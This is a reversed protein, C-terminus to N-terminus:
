LHKAVLIFATLTNAMVPSFGALGAQQLRHPLHPHASETLAIARRDKVRYSDYGGQLGIYFGDKLSPVDPCPVAAPAMAEGKFNGEGKYNKAAFAVSTTTALMLAGVLVKKSTSSSIM